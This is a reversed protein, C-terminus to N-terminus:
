SFVGGIVYGSINTEFQIHRKPDFHHFIPAKDFAQRLKTFAMKTESILFGLETKKFKSSNISKFLNRSKKRVENDGKDDIENNGIESRYLKSGDLKSWNYGM